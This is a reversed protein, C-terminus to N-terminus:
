KEERISFALWHRDDSEAQLHLALSFGRNLYARYGISFLERDDSEYSTLAAGLELIGPRESHGSSGFAVHLNIAARHGFEDAETDASEVKLNLYRYELGIVSRFILNQQFRGGVQWEAVDTQDYGVRSFGGLVGLRNSLSYQGDLFWGSGDLSSGNLDWQSKQYGLSMYSPTEAQAYSISLLTAISVSLLSSFFKRSM